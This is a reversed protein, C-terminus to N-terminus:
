APGTPAATSSIGACAPPSWGTQAEGTPSLRATRKLARMSDSRRCYRPAPQPGRPKPWIPPWARRTCSRGRSAPRSRTSSSLSSIRVFAATWRHPSITPNPSPLGLADDLASLAVNLDAKRRIQEERVAALHVKISLVDANTSM